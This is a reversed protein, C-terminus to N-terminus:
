NRKIGEISISELEPVLQLVNKSFIEPKRCIEEYTTAYCRDGLIEINKIQQEQCLEWHQFSESDLFGYKRMSYCFTEYQRTAIIFKSQPFQKALFPAKFVNDPTKEIKVAKSMDWSKFWFKKIMPWNFNEEIYNDKQQSFLRPEGYPMYNSVYDSRDALRVDKGELGVTGTNPPNPQDFWIEKRLYTANPSSGLVKLVMTSGSNNPIVVFLFM